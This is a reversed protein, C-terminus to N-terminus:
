KLTSDPSTGPGVPKEDLYSSIDMANNGNPGVKAPEAGTISIASLIILALIKFKMKGPLEPM